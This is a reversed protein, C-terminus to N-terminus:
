PCPNQCELHISNIKKILDESLKVSYSKVAVELQEMTASGIIISTVFDQQNVFALSMVAPDLDFDQALQIYKKIIGEAHQTEYRQGREFLTTRAGKPRAGDLYKGTLYGQALPSYALLGVKERYYYESLGIEYVRSLLNYVNQVSVIKPLNFEESAKLFSSLGM